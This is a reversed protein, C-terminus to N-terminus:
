QMVLDTLYVALVEHEGLIQRAAALLDAKLAARGASTALAPGSSGAVVSGVADYLLPLFRSAAAVIEEEAAARAEGTLDYFGASEPRLEITLGIKVYRFPGGAPLNIIRSELPLMAGHQGPGPDPVARPETGGVVALQTFALGAAAALGIPLGLLVMARKGRPLKM